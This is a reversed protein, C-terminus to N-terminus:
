LLDPCFLLSGHNTISGDKVRVHVRIAFQDTRRGFAITKLYVHGCNLIRGKGDRRPTTLEAIPCPRLQKTERRCCGKGLKRSIEARNMQLPLLIYSSLRINLLGKSFPSVFDIPLPLSLFLFCFSNFNIQWSLMGGARGVTLGNGQVRRRSRISGSTNEASSIERRFTFQASSIRSLRRFLSSYLRNHRNM